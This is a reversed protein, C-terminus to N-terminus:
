TFEYMLKEFVNMPPMIKNYVDKLDDDSPLSQVYNKLDYFDSREVKSGLAHNVRVQYAEFEGVKVNM